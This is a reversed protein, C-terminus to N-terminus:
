RDLLGILEGPTDIVHDAGSAKLEARGRLGWAVGIAKLEANHALQMDVDSDGVYWARLPEVGLESLVEIASTPDPKVPTGDVHGRVVDFRQNAFLKAVVDGTAEHPKNSLVALRVGREVLRDLMAHIGPYVTAMATGETELRPRYIATVEDVRDAAEPPLAREVLKRVGNGVFRRYADTPHTPFGLEALTRNMSAAIGALTDALTGDLDFIM